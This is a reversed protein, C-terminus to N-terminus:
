VGTIGLWEQLLVPLLEAFREADCYARLMEECCKSDLKKAPRPIPGFHRELKGM